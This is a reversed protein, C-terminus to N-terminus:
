IVNGRSRRSSRPCVLRTNVMDPLTHAVHVSPAQSLVDSMSRHYSKPVYHRTSVSSNEKRKEELNRFMASMNTDHAPAEQNRPSWAEPTLQYLCSLDNLPTGGSGSGYVLGGPTEIHRIIEIVNSIDDQKSDPKDGTGNDHHPVDQTPWVPLTEALDAELQAPISMVENQTAHDLLATWMRDQQQAPNEQSSNRQKARATRGGGGAKKTVNASCDLGMNDCRRCKQGPWVRDVPTCKASNNSMPSRILSSISVPKKDKRCFTCKSYNLRRRKGPLQLPQEGSTTGSEVVHEPGKDPVNGVQPQRVNQHGPIQPMQHSPATEATVQGKLEEIVGELEHLRKM